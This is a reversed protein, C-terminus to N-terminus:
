AVGHQLGDHVEDAAIITGISGIKKQEKELNNQSMKVFSLQCDYFIIATSNELICWVRQM